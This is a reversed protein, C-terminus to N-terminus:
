KILYVYEWKKEGEVEWDKLDIFLMKMLIVLYINNVTYDIYHSPILVEKGTPRINPSRQWETCFTRLKLDWSSHVRLCEVM